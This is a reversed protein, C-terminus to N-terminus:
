EAIEPAPRRRGSHSANKTGAMARPRISNGVHHWGCHRCRYPSRGDHSKHALIKALRATLRVKGNCMTAQADANSMTGARRKM